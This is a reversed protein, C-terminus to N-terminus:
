SLTSTFWASIVGRIDVRRPINDFVKNEFYTLYGGGESMNIRSGGSKYKYSLYTLYGGGESM